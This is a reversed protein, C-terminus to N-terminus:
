YHEEVPETHRVVLEKPGVDVKKSTRLVATDQKRAVVAALDNHRKDKDVQNHDVAVALSHMELEVQTGALRVARLHAVLM